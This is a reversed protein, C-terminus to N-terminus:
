KGETVIIQLVVGVVGDWPDRPIIFQIGEYRMVDFHTGRSDTQHDVDSPPGMIQRIREATDGTRVGADTAYRTDQQIAVGIVRENLTWVLLLGKNQTRWTYRMYSGEHARGDEPGLLAKIDALPSGITIPGIGAKPTILFQPDVQGLAVSPAVLVVALLRAFLKVM